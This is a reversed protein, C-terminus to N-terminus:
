GGTGATRRHVLLHYSHLRTSLPTFTTVRKEAMSADFLAHPRRRLTFSDSRPPAPGRPWEWRRRRRSGADQAADMVEARRVRPGQQRGEIGAQGSAKGRGRADWAVTKTAAGGFRTWGMQCSPLLCPAPIDTYAGPTAPLSRGPMPSSGPTATSAFSHAQSRLDCLFCACPVKYRPGHSRRRSRKPPRM